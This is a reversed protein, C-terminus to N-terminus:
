SWKHRAASHQAAAAPRDVPAALPAWAVGGRADGQGPATSVVGIFRGVETSLVQGARWKLQPQPQYPRLHYNVM